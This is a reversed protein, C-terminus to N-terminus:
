VSCHRDSKKKSRMNLLQERSKTSNDLSVTVIRYGGSANSGGKRERYTFTQGSNGAYTGFQATEANNKSKRLKKTEEEKQRKRPPAKLYHFQTASILDTSFPSSIGLSVDSVVMTVVRTEEVLSSPHTIMICDGAALERQFLTGNQGMVSTGSTIFRGTGLKKTAVYSSSVNEGSGNLSERKRKKKERKKDKKRKKKEKEKRRLAAVSGDGSEGKFRLTGSKTRSYSQTSM